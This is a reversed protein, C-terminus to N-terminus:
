FTAVSVKAFRNDRDILSGLNAATYSEILIPSSDGPNAPTKLMLLLSIADLNKKPKFNSLTVTSLAASFTLQVKSIPDPDELGRELLFAAMALCNTPSLLSLQLATVRVVSGSESFFTLHFIYTQVVDTQEDNRFHLFECPHFFSSHFIGPIISLAPINESREYM